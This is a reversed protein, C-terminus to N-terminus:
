LAVESYSFFYNQRTPGIKGGESIMDGRKEPRETERRMLQNRRGYEFNFMKGKRREDMAQLMEPTAWPKKPTRGKKFGINAKVSM